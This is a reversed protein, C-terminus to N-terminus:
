LRKALSIFLESGARSEISNYCEEMCAITFNNKFLDTYEELSGGFPPGHEFTRNFLLGIIKGETNLLDYCKRVYSERMTPDIACFFTQELIIDYNGELEFFNGTLVKINPSANFKDKLKEVLTPSLDIITIDSFGLALLAEAEYSNGCGPILISIDKQGFKEFYSYLPPSVKGLDWGTQQKKYRDDWYKQEMETSNKETKQRKRRFRKKLSDSHLM